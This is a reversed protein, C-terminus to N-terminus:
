RRDPLRRGHDTGPSRGSARPCPPCPRPNLEDRVRQLMASLLRREDPTLTTELLEAIRRQHASLAEDARRAGDPTLCAFSGRRDDSCSMREVLGARCMRDVARTLGSPTLSARAALDSMRLRGDKSRALSILLEASQPPLGLEREWRVGVLRRFAGAAELVLRVLAVPDERADAGARTDVM